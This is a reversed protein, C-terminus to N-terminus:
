RDGLVVFAIDNRLGMRLVGAPLHRLVARQIVWTPHAVTRLVHLVGQGPECWLMRSTRPGPRTRSGLEEVGITRGPEVQEAPVPGIGGGAHESALRSSTPGHSRTATV